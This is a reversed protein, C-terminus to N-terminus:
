ASRAGAGTTGPYPRVQSLITTKAAEFVPRHLAYTVADVLRGGIYHHDILRAELAFLEPAGALYDDYGDGASEFYLKRLDFASFCYDAFLLMGELPWGRRRVDQDLMATFQATRGVMDLAWLQCAGLPRRDHLAEIIIVAEAGQTLIQQFQEFTPHRARLRWRAGADTLCVMEFLWGLDSPFLPRIATHRGSRALGDLQESPQDDTAKPGHDSM